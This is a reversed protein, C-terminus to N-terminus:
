DKEEEEERLFELPNYGTTFDNSEFVAVIDPDSSIATINNQRLEFCVESHKGLVEGFYVERGIASEILNSDAVFIGCLLGARGTEYLFKYITRM